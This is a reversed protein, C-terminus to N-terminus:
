KKFTATKGARESHMRRAPKPGDESNIRAAYPDFAPKNRRGANDQRTNSLLARQAHLVSQAQTYDFPAEDDDEGDEEAAGGEGSGDAGLRAKKNAQKREAKHQERALSVEKEALKREKAIMKKKARREQRTEQADLPIMDQSEIAAGGESEQDSEKAQVDEHKRKRGQRLTFETDATVTPSVRAPKTELPIMDADKQQQAKAEVAEQEAASAAADRVFNVWPLSMLTKSADGLVKKSREWASSIPMSGFLQSKQSRLQDVPPLDPKAKKPSKGLERKAVAAASNGEGIGRLYEVNSPGNAGEEKAALVLKFLEDLSRQVVAACNRGLLSWLAKPDGPLLKAIDMLTQAPIIFNPNEDEKRALDDRWKHVARFVAFQSGDLRTNYRKLANGWGRNGDGTSSNPEPPTYRDLSTEKSRQLAHEILNKQPDPNTPDSGKVLENRMLDYVYLLYHTDCRAYYLMEETLPRSENAFGSLVYILLLYNGYEGTLWRTSRTQTLALM